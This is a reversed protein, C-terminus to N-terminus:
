TGAQGPPNWRAELEITRAPGTTRTRVTGTTECLIFVYELVGEWAVQYAESVPTPFDIRIVGSMADIPRYEFEVGRIMPVAVAGLREFITNPFPGFLKLTTTLLTKLVVGLNEVMTAAAVERVGDPGRLAAVAVMMEDLVKGPVTSVVLLPKDMATRTDKSVLDRVQDRIGMRQLVKMYAQIVAGALTWADPPAMGVTLLAEGRRRRHRL